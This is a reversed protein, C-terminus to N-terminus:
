DRTAGNAIWHRVACRAGEPLPMGRPMVFRDDESDLRQVLVSCAPDSPIVRARGDAGGLLADYAADAGGALVLGSQTGEGHCARGAVCSAGHNGWFADFTPAFSPECELDVASLCAPADDDAPCGAQGVLSIGLALAVAVRRTVRYQM